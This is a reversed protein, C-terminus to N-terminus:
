ARRVSYLSATLCRRTALNASATMAPEEKMLTSLALSSSCWSLISELDKGPRHALLVPITAIGKGETAHLCSLAVSRGAGAMQLMTQRNSPSDALVASLLKVADVGRSSVAGKTGEEPQDLQVPAKLIPCSEGDILSLTSAAVCTFLSLLALGVEPCDSPCTTHM